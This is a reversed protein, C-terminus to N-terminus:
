GPFGGFDGSGDSDAAFPDGTGFMERFIDDAGRFGGGGPRFHFTRGSGGAGSMGGDESSGGGGGGMKLGDEGVQDYIRKKEPDTLVDFAEGIEQFKAQAEDKKAPEVRDPHWKLALKKYAKKIEQETSSRTVGLIKYFDRGM